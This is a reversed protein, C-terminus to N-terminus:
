VLVVIPRLTRDYSSYEGIALLNKDPGFVRTLIPVNSSTTIESSFSLQEEVDTESIPQGHAVRSAIKVNLVISPASPLLEELPICAAISSEVNKEFEDLSIASDLGFDGSRIRRLSSLHAGCGIKRGLDHALSRVYFGTSCLINLSVVNNQFSTLTLEHVTVSVSKPVVPVGKRALKYARIGNIRKASFQPPQQNYGGRFNELAAEIDAQSCLSETKTTTDQKGKSRNTLVSGPPPTIPQGTFDYTDTEWGLRVKAQYYKAGTSVFRALRTARGIVLPLVGTAMPDLTGTHGVRKLGALYRVRAVVDHSTPGSPKDIVLVGNM